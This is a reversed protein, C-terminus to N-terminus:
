FSASRKLLRQRPESPLHTRYAGESSPNLPAWVGMLDRGVEALERRGLLDTASPRLSPDPHMMEGVIACLGPSAGPLPGLDGNRIAHWEDGCDPLSRGSCVEYMTAGLSFIDCKTLDRHDEALLDRPMYRSDGEEIDDISRRELRKNNHVEEHKRFAHALGFDGLKYLDNKVFINEPKIDLHVMGQRHVLELALLIERLIKFRWVDNLVSTPALSAGRRSSFANNINANIPNTIPTGPPPSLVLPMTRSMHDRLTATCLETQIYLTGDDELWAQQYRVIHFTRIDSQNCLAALAFVERLMRRLAADNWHRSGRRVRGNGKQNEDDDNM